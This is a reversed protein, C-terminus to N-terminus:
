CDTPGAQIQQSESVEDEDNIAVIASELHGKRGFTDLYVVIDSTGSALEARERAAERHHKLEIEAFADPRWPPLPRPDITELNKLIDVDM